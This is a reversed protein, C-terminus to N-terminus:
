DKCVLRLSQAGSWKNKEDKEDKEDKGNSGHKGNQDWSGSRGTSHDGAETAYCERENNGVGISRLLRGRQCNQGDFLQVSCGSLGQRGFFSEFSLSFFDNPTNSCRSQREQGGRGTRGLPFPIAVETYKVQDGERRVGEAACNTTPHLRVNLVQPTSSAPAANVTVTSTVPDVRITTTRPASRRTTTTTSWRTTTKWQTRSKGTVTITKTRTSGYSDDHQSYSGTLDDGHKEKQVSSSNDDESPLAIALVTAGAALLSVLIKSFM